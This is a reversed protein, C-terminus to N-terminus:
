RDARTADAVPAVDGVPTVDAVDPDLVPRLVRRLREMGDRIRTKVTGLPVGLLAAIESQTLGGFYALAIAQRQPLPLGDM